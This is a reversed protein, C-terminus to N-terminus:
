TLFHTVKQCKKFSKKRYEMIKFSPGIDFIQSLMGEIHCEHIYM